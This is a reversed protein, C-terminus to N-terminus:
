GSIVNHQSISKYHPVKQQSERNPKAPLKKRAISGKTSFLCVGATYIRFPFINSMSGGGGGGNQLCSYQRWCIRTNSHLQSCFHVFFSLTKTVKKSVFLFFLRVAAVFRLFNAWFYYKRAHVGCGRCKEKIM